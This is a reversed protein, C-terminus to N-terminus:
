VCLLLGVRDLLVLLIAALNELSILLLTLIKISGLQKKKKKKQRAFDERSVPKYLNIRHKSVVGPYCRRSFM